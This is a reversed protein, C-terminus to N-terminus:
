LDNSRSRSNSPQSGTSTKELTIARLIEFLGDIGAFSGLTRGSLDLVKGRLIRHEDGPITTGQERWWRIIITSGPTHSPLDSRHEGNADGV